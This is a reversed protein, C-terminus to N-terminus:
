QEPVFPGVGLKNVVATVGPVDRVLREVTNRQAATSVGGSIYATGNTVHIRVAGFDRHLRSRVEDTIRWDEPSMGGAAMSACGTQLALTAALLLALRWTYRM